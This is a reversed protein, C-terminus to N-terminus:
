ESGAKESAATIWPELRKGFAVEVEYRASPSNQGARNNQPSHEFVQRFAVPVNIKDISLGGVYGSLRQENDHSVRQPRVQGRVIAYRARDPYKARLTGIDLGADVVFLRTNEREERTAHDKAAKARQEFAKNGANAAYSAEARAANQRARELSQQYAPGELELVLLVEKALQKDYHKSGDAAAKPESTEFGLSALKAKDLWAPSGGIGGFNMVPGPSDATEEIPVRWLLTLAVGSNEVSSRWSYPPQLERQTLRLVSDPDGSRNYAVGALAVANVALILAIGAVLTRRRSWTIM